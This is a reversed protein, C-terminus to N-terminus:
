SLSQARRKRMKMQTLTLITTVISLSLSAAAIYSLLQVRSNVERLEESARSELKEVSSNVSSVLDKLRDLSKSLEESKSSLRSVSENLDRIAGRLEEIMTIEDEMPKQAVISLVVPYPVFTNNVYLKLLAVVEAETANLLEPKIWVRLVGSALTSVNVVWVRASGKVVGEIALEHLSINLPSYVDIYGEVGSVYYEGVKVFLPLMSYKVEVSVERVPKPTTIYLQTSLTIAPNSFDYLVLDYWGSAAYPTVISVEYGGRLNSTDLCMINGGLKLTILDGIGIGLVAVDLSAGASVNANRVLLVPNVYLLTKAYYVTSGKLSVAFVENGKHHTPPVIVKVLNEPSVEGRFVEVGAIHISLQLEERLGRVVLGVSSLPTAYAPYTYMKLEEVAYGLAKAIAKFANVLGHGAGTSSLEEASETLTSYVKSVLEAGRLGREYIIKSVIGAVAAVIPTSASTGSGIAILEGPWAGPVDVGPAVLDPKAYTKPYRGGFPWAAPPEPWEVEEYSSFWAVDDDFDTAGVGIVGWINGPNSSTYPGDNGIAAVPVIGSQILKAIAPLFVNSYNGSSGFSMSVVAVRGVSIPNGMCDVPKLAWDLGALVQAATGYGAPLVLAVIVKASPAVGFVYSKGDGGVAISAVWTGHGYTDRPESCIPKGKRDFEIWGGLKGAILPHTPDIGTDLLAITVGSGLTNFYRWVLDAGVRSVAWSWAHSTNTHWGSAQAVKNVPGLVRFSALTSSISVNINPATYLGASRLAEEAGSPCLVLAAKINWFVNEIECGAGKVYGLEEVANFYVISEKVLATSVQLSHSAVVSTLAHFCLAWLIVWTLLKKM